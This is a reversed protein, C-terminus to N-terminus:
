QFCSFNFLVAFILYRNENKNINSVEYCMLFKYYHKAIDTPKNLNLGLEGEGGPRLAVDTKDILFVINEYKQCWYNATGEIDYM